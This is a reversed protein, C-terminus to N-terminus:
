ELACRTRIDLVQDRLGEVFVLMEQTPNEYYSWYIEGCMRMECDLTIGSELAPTMEPSPDAASMYAFYAQRHDGQDMKSQAECVLKARTGFRNKPTEFSVEELACLDIEGYAPSLSLLGLTCVFISFTRITPARRPTQSRPGTPIM